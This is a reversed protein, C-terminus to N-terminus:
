RGRPRGQHWFIQTVAAWCRCRSILVRRLKIRILQRQEQAWILIQQSQEDDQPYLVAVFAFSHPWWFTENHSTPLQACRSRSVTWPTRLLSDSVFVLFCKLTSNWNEILMAWLTTDQSQGLFRWLWSLPALSKRFCTLSPSPHCVHWCSFLQMRRNEYIRM